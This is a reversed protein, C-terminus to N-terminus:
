WILHHERSRLEGIVALDHIKERRVDALEVHVDFVLIRREHAIAERIREVRRDEPRAELRSDLAELQDASRVSRESRGTEQRTWQFKCSSVSALHVADAPCSWAPIPRIFSSTVGLVPACLASGGIHAAGIRSM